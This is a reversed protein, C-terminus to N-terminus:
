GRLEELARPAVEELPEEVAALAMRLHRSARDPVDTVASELAGPHSSALAACLVCAQHRDKEAKAQRGTRLQSVILKHVAFREPLPVRVACCGQRAMVMSTQSEALLYDLYPLGIGYAQLEPVPAVPFTEDASPVVLDVHFRSRGRQKYSTSPQKRDLAPVEVFAVGSDRLMELLGVEPRKDFTLERGRAIDIDETAYPAARVGLRNLLV